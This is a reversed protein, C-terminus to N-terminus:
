LVYLGVYVRCLKIIFSLSTFGTKASAWCVQSVISLSFSSSFPDMNTDPYTTRGELSIRGKHLAKAHEM